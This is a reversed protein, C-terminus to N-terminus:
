GNKFKIDNFRKTNLQNLEIIEIAKIIKKAVNKGRYACQYKQKKQKKLINRLTNKIKNRHSSIQFVTKSLLRGKQREGINITKIGLLPAEIIGSSSNGIICESNKLFQLFSEHGLSKYIKSNKNKKTFQKLKEIIYESGPDSNPYTFIINVKKQNELVKLLNNVLIKNQKKSIEPHCCVLLTKNFKLNNKKLFNKKNLFKIKRITDNCLAGFNFIHRPDEGLQLVRKKYDNTAVFHLNSMKTISHRFIDDKSGESLEGGHIHAIKIDNITCAVASAFAEYRDGLLICMDINKKTLIQSVTKIILLSNEMLNKNENKSFKLNLKSHIEFKDKKIESLTSGYKKSLHTGTVALFCKLRKSHNIEMLINRLLGYESRSGTVILINKM